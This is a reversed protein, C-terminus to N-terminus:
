GSVIGKKSVIVPSISQPFGNIQSPQFFRIREREKFSFSKKVEARLLVLFKDDSGVSVVYDYGVELCKRINAIEYDTKSTHSIEVAVRIDDKRLGVNVSELSKPIGEEIVAKWGFLESQEKLILQM